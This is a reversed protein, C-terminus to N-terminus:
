GGTAIMATVAILQAVRDLRRGGRRKIWKSDASSRHLEPWKTSAVPFPGPQPYQGVRAPFLLLFSLRGAAPQEGYRRSITSM